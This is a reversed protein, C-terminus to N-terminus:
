IWINADERLIREEIALLSPTTSSAGGNQINKVVHRAGALDTNIVHLCACGAQAGLLRRPYEVLSHTKGALM